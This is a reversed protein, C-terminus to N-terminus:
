VLCETVWAGLGAGHRALSWALLAMLVAEIALLYRM